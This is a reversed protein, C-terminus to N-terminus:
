RTAIFNGLIRNTAQLTAMVASRLPDDDALHCGLLRQREGNRLYSLSVIAVTADFVRLTKVGLLEFKMAGASFREIATLAAQSAMRLDGLPSSLGETRGVFVEGAGWELEVEASCQASPSRKFSFRIFRLRERKPDVDMQQADGIGQRAFEPSTM